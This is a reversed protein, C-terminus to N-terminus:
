RGKGKAYKGFDRMQSRSETKVQGVNSKVVQSAGILGTNLLTRPMAVSARGVARAVNVARGNPNFNAGSIPTSSQMSQGSTNNSYNNSGGNGIISSGGSVNNGTLKGGYNLASQGFRSAGVARSVFGRGGLATGGINRVGWGMSRKAMGLGAIGIGTTARAISQMAMMSGMNQQHEATGTGLLQSFLLNAQGMAMAGGIVLLLQITGNAIANETGGFFTIGPNITLKPIIMFYLNVTMIIGYASLVKSITLDRWQKFRAGDDLPQVAILLPAVIYLLVLDFLRKVFVFSSMILVILLGAAGVFGVFINMDQTDIYYCGEKETWNSMRMYKYSPYNSGNRFIISNEGKNVIVSIQGLPFFREDLAVEEASDKVVGIYKEHGDMDLLKAKDSNEFAMLMLVQGGYSVQRDTENSIGAEMAINIQGMVVNSMLIFSVLLIPVLVINLLSKFFNEGVKILNMKEDESNKMTRFMQIMTFVFLLAFGLVVTFMLTNKVASDKMFFTVINTTGGIDVDELGILKKFLTIILDILGAMQVTIMLFFREIAGLIGGMIMGREEEPTKDGGGGSANCTPCNVKIIKSGGCKTCTVGDVLGTGTCTDCKKDIFRTNSCTVCSAVGSEDLCEVRAYAIKGCEDETKLTYFGTTVSIETNLTYPSGNMTTYKISSDDNVNFVIKDGINVRAVIETEMERSGTWVEDNYQLTITPAKKDAQLKYYLKQGMKDTLVISYESFKNEKPSLKFSSNSQSSNHVVAEDLKILVNTLNDWKLDIIDLNKLITPNELTGGVQAKGNVYFNCQMDEVTSKVITKKEYSTRQLSGGSYRRYFDDYYFQQPVPENSYFTIKPVILKFYSDAGYAHIVTDMPNSTKIENESFNRYKIHNNIKSNNVDYGCSNTISLAISNSYIYGSTQYRYVSGPKQADHDREVTIPTITHKYRYPIFASDGEPIYDVEIAPNEALQVVDNGKVDDSILPTFGGFIMIVIILVLVIAIKKM